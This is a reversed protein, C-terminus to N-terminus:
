PSLGTLGALPSTASDAPFAAPRRDGHPPHGHVCGAPAMSTRWRSLHSVSTFRGGAFGHMRM